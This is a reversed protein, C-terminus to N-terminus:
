STRHELEADICSSYDDPGPHRSQGCGLLKCHGAGGVNEIEVNERGGTFLYELTTFRQILFLHELHQAEAVVAEFFQEGERM